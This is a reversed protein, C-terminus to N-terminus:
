GGKIVPQNSIDLPWAIGFEKRNGCNTCYFIMRDMTNPTGKEFYIKVSAYDDNRPHNMDGCRHSHCKITFAM